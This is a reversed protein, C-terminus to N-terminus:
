DYNFNELEEKLEPTLIFNESGSNRFDYITYAKQYVEGCIGLIIFMDKLAVVKDLIYNSMDQNKNIYYYKNAKKQLMALHYACENILEKKDIFNYEVM